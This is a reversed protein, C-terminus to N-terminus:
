LSEIEKEYLKEKEKIITEKHIIEELMVRSLTYYPIQEHHSNQLVRLLEKSEIYLLKKSIIGSYHPDIYTAASLVKLVLIMVDGLENDETNLSELCDMVKQVHKRNPFVPTMDSAQYASLTERLEVIREWRNFAVERAKERARGIRKENKQRTSVQNSYRTSFVNGPTDSLKM